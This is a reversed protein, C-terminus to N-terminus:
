VFAQKLKGLYLRVFRIPRAKGSMEKVKGSVKVFLLGVGLDLIVQRFIFSDPAVM